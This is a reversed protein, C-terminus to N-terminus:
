RADGNGIAYVIDATGGEEATANQFIDRDGFAHLADTVVREVM